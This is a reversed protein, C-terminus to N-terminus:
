ACRKSVMKLITFNRDTTIILVVRAHFAVRNRISSITSIQRIPNPIGADGARQLKADDLLFHLTHRLAVFEAAFADLFVLDLRDFFNGDIRQLFRECDTRDVQHGDVGALIRIHGCYRLRKVGIQELFADSRYPASVLSGGKSFCNV